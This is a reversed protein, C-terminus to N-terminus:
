LANERVLTSQKSAQKREMELVSKTKGMGVRRKKRQVAKGYQQRSDQSVPFWHCHLTDVWSCHALLEKTLSGLSLSSAEMIVSWWRLFFFAAVDASNLHIVSNTLFSSQCCKWLSKVSYDWVHCMVSTDMLCFSLYKLCMTHAECM